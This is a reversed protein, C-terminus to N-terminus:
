PAARVRSAIAVAEQRSRAGELRLLLEGHRWLLVDGATRVSDTRLEGSRDAYAYQHPGTIWLGREGNVRVGDVGTGPRLFKFLYDRELRGQVETIFMRGGRYVLGLQGGPPFREYYVTPRGLGAPLLPTFDLRARAAALTTHEGLALKQGAPEPLPRPIREVHVSRLGLWDLIPERIGPIAAATAALLLLAALAIALPRRIRFDGGPRRTAGIRRADGTQVPAVAEVRPVVVAALDPTTPWALEAATAQLMQELQTV